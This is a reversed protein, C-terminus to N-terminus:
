PPKRRVAECLRKLVQLYFVQNVTPGNPVFVSHFIGNAYLFDANEQCKVESAASKQSTTFKFEEMRKVAVEERLQLRLVM